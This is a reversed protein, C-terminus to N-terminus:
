PGNHSMHSTLPWNSNHAPRFLLGNININNMAIILRHKWQITYSDNVKGERGKAGPVIPVCVCVCVCVYASCSTGATLSFKISIIDYVFKSHKPVFINHYLGRIYVAYYYYITLINYYCTYDWMCYMYYLLIACMTCAHVHIDIHTCQLYM